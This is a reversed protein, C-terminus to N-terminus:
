FFHAVVTFEQHGEGGTVMIQGARVWAHAKINVEDKNAVGFYVTAPIKRRDLMVKATIAQDFCVSKFPMMVAVKKIYKRIRNAKQITEEPLEQTSEIQLNGLFAVIRKFPLCFISLKSVLLLIAIEFTLIQDKLPLRVWTTFKSM